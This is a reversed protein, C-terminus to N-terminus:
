VSRNPGHRQREEEAAIVPIARDIADRLRKLAEAVSRDTALLGHPNDDTSHRLHPPLYFDGPELEPPLRRTQTEHVTSSEKVGNHEHSKKGGRKKRRKRSRRM